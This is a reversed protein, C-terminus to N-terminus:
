PRCPASLPARSPRNKSFRCTYYISLYSLYRLDLLYLSALEDVIVYLSFLPPSRARIQLTQRGYIIVPDDIIRASLRGSHDAARKM